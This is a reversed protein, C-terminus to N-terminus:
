RSQALKLREKVRGRLRLDLHLQHPPTSRRNLKALSRRLWRQNISTKTQSHGAVTAYQLLTVEVLSFLEVIKTPSPNMMPITSSKQQFVFNVKKNSALHKTLILRRGACKWNQLGSTVQVVSPGAEPPAQLYAMLGAEEVSFAPGLMHYSLMLVLRCNPVARLLRASKWAGTPLNLSTLGVMLVGEAHTHWKRGHYTHVM